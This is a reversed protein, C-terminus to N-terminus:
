TGDENSPRVGINEYRDLDYRERIEEHSGIEAESSARSKSTTLSQTIVGGVM